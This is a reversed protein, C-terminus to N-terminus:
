LLSPCLRAVLCYCCIVDVPQLLFVVNECLTSASFTNLLVWSGNM